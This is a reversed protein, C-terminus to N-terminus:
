GSVRQNNAAFEPVRSALGGYSWAPNKPVYANIKVSDGRISAEQCLSLIVMSDPALTIDSNIRLNGLGITLAHAASVPPYTPHHLVRQMPNNFGSVEYPRPGCRAAQQDNASACTTAPASPAGETQFPKIQITCASASTAASGLCGAHLVSFCDIFSGATITTITTVTTPKVFTLRDSPLSALSAVITNPASASESRLRWIRVTAQRRVTAVSALTKWSFGQNNFKGIQGNTIM